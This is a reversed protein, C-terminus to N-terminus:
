NKATLSLARTRAGFPDFIRWWTSKTPKAFLGTQAMRYQQRDLDARTERALRSSDRLEYLRRM